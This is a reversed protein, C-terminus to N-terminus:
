NIFTWTEEEQQPTKALAKTISDSWNNFLTALGQKRYKMTDPDTSSYVSELAVWENETTEKIIHRADNWAKVQSKDFPTSERMKFLARARNLNKQEVENEIPVIPTTYSNNLKNTVSNAKQKAKEESENRNGLIVSQTKKPKRPRGGRKGNDANVEAKHHYKAIEDDCKPQVWGEETEIFFDNLVNVLSKQEDESVLRLRRIVSQTIKPIPKEELYYWDLLQRYIGHEMTSLHMTDRRYDGINFTYYHM